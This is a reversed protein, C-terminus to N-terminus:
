PILEGVIWDHVTDRVGDAVEDLAHGAGPYLLLEKPERALEYVARAASWSLVPDDSGHLLLLSCRPGLREIPGAGAGDAALAVVTRVARLGMAAEIVAAGGRGHGILALRTIDQGALYHIGTQIDAVCQTLDRPRRLRVRLSAIGEEQLSQCLRPYLARAPTDWDDTTGVWVAAAQAGPLAYYRCAVEGRERRLTLPHFPQSHPARERAQPERTSAPRHHHREM